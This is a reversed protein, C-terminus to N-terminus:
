WSKLYLVKSIPYFGCNKYYKELKENEAIVYLSKGRTACDSIIENLIKKGNGRPAFPDRALVGLLCFDEDEATILGVTDDYIFARACNNCQRIKMDAIFELRPVLVGFTQDATCIIKHVKDYDSTPLMTCPVETKCDHMLVTHGSDSLIEVERAGIFKAFMRLEDWDAKGCVTVKGGFVCAFANGQQWFTAIKPYEHYCKFLTNMKLSLVSPAFYPLRDIRKM